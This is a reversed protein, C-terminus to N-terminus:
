PRSAEAYTLGEFDLAIMEKCKRCQVHVRNRVTPCKPPFTVRRGDAGELIGDRKCNCLQSM